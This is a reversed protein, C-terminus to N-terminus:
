SIKGCSLEIWFISGKGPTSKVGVKGGMLEVAKRVSSLGLGIGPYYPM